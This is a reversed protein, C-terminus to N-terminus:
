PQARFYERMPAFYYDEWGQRYGEGQGAPVRTHLLTLRTGEPVAELLVVLRSDPSDDPFETTRWAQVIRREPELELTTGHIYGDWATFSGGVRPDVKAAGGTFAAHESGDLWARYVRQPAAALTTSLKLSDSM